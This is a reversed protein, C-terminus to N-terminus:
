TNRVQMNWGGTSENETSANETAGKVWTGVSDMGWVAGRSRNMMKNPKCYHGTSLCVTWPVDTAIPRMTHKAAWYCGDVCANSRRRMILTLINYFYQFRHHPLGSAISYVPVLFGLFLIILLPVALAGFGYGGIMTNRPYRRRGDSYRFYVFVHNIATLRLFYTKLWSGVVATLM